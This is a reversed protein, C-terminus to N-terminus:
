SISRLATLLPSPAWSCWDGWYFSSSHSQPKFLSKSFCIFRPKIESQSKNGDFHVSRSKLARDENKRDKEMKSESTSRRMKTDSNGRSMEHGVKERSAICTHSSSAARVFAPRPPPSPGLLSRIPLDPDRTTLSSTSTFSRRSRRLTHDPEFIAEPSTQFTECFHYKDGIQVIFM